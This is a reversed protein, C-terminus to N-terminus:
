RGLISSPWALVRVAVRVPLNGTPMFGYTPVGLVYNLTRDVAENIISAVLPITHGGIPVKGTRTTDLEAGVYERVPSKGICGPGIVTEDPTPSAGHWYRSCM